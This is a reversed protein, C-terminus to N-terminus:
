SAPDRLRYGVGPETIVYRPRSPDPELKARIHAVHVRLYHTEAGYEPGWVERLLLRHTVLRGQHQALVRLLDFEIPTLHVPEGGRTVLRDSLDIVLEGIEIRPSGGIDASRRLLARLRALLEDTGFPKTVYDDAGADLARVKEREDGVASLVLIPLRSWRRVEQCIEVGRGDPLVLDLVLADPPRSVLEVLADAKTEAAEVAYGASRLLIKLGRVIQPEDDVVLVRPAGASMDRRGRRGRRRSAPERSPLQRHVLDGRGEREALRDPRRQGRRLRPLDGTGPWIRRRGRWTWPLVARVGALPLATPDRQRPRGRARRRARRQRRRQDSGATGPPSFKVANEILNSFVRELQAADARVLPLDAPLTFEVPHAGSSHAAASAVVDHLDCWDAQPSVAGSEIRSLDLLDDVLKALRASEVEIVEILEAREAETVGGIALASGATTIATLPSRLDHSIAHLIATKAIEARHSAETEASRESIREREVAVDVLRGISDAVREIAERDWRVDRTLYLWANGARAHLPVTIEDPAAVPVPELVVRARGADTALAVRNGITELQAGVSEGALIASAVEAVLKAERERATALQARSEAEAARERAVAALRGVVAAAILLVVLEVVDASHAITLQHRPPIYLYNFTLVSLVATILAPWQGRRIAILLVALLYLIGLGEVPTSSQLAAVGATAAAVALVVECGIM